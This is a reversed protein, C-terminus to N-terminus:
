DKVTGVKTYNLIYSKLEKQLNLFFLLAGDVIHLPMKKFLEARTFTNDFDKIIYNGKKDEEKVERFLVAMLSHFDEVNTEYKSITMFEKTTINDFDNIFGYKVGDLEFIPKFEVEKTIAEKVYNLVSLYDKQSVNDIDILSINTFLAFIRKAKADESIDEREIIKVYAQYQELTIESKDEPLVVKM